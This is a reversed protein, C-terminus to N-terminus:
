KLAALIARGDGGQIFSQKGDKEVKFFPVGQGGYRDYEQRCVKNKEVDCDKYTFGYGGLWGRMQNCYPCSQTSYMTLEGAKVSQAISSIEQSSYNQSCAVLTLTLGCVAFRILRQM